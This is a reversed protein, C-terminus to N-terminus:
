SVGTDQQLERQSEIRSCAERRAFGDPGKRLAVLQQQPTPHRSDGYEVQRVLHAAPEPNQKM